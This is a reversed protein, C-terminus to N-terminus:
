WVIASPSHVTLRRRIQERSWARCRSRRNIEASSPNVPLDSRATTSSLSSSGRVASSVSRTGFTLSTWVSTHLRCPRLRWVSVLGWTFSKTRCPSRVLNRSLQASCCTGARGSNAVRGAEAERIVPSYQRTDTRTETRRRGGSSGPNQELGQLTGSDIEDSKRGDGLAGRELAGARRAACCRRM